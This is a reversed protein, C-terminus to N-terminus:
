LGAGAEFVVVVVRDASLLAAYAAAPVFLSGTRAYAFAAVGLTAVRTAAFLAAAVSGLGALGSGVVVAALAAVPLYALARLRRRRPDLRESAVVGAGLLLAFAAAGALRGPDPVATLGGAGGATVFGTVATTPVVAADRDLVRAFSGQVLVQCVAVLSPVGVLLALGAVTVVPVLPPDAAVATGTLSGYRVGTARAVLATLAVLGLPSLAAAGVWPLDAVTPRTLGRDVNRVAAYGGVIAALGALFLGGYAVGAVPLGGPLSGLGSSLARLLRGWLTVAALVATVAAFEVAL